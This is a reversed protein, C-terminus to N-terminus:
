VQLLIFTILSLLISLITLVGVLYNFKNQCKQSKKNEIILSEIDSVGNNISKLTKNNERDDEGITKFTMNIKKNIHINQKEIKQCVYIM